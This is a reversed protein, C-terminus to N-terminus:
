ISSGVDSSCISCVNQPRFLAGHNPNLAKLKESSVLARYCVSGSWVADKVGSRSLDNVLSDNQDRKAEELALTVMTHRTPSHIGDAGILVDCAATSGDKFYMMVTGNQEVTYDTLRKNFHTVINEHQLRNALTTQFEVRHLTINGVSYPNIAFICMLHSCCMCPVKVSFNKEDTVKPHFKIDSISM